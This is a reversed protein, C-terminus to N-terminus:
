RLRCAFVVLSVGDVATLALAPHHIREAALVLATLASVLADM